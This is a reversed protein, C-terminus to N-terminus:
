RQFPIAIFLSSYLLKTFFAEGGDLFVRSKRDAKKIPPAIHTIPCSILSSHKYKSKLSFSEPINTEDASITIAAIKVPNPTNSFIALCAPAPVSTGIVPKALATTEGAISNLDSPKM